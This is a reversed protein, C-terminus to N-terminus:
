TATEDSRVLTFFRNAHDVGATFLVDGADIRLKGNKFAKRVFVPRPVDLPARYYLAKKAAFAALVVDWTECCQFAYGSIPTPLRTSM